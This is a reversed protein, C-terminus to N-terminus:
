GNVVGGKRLAADLEALDDPFHIVKVAPIGEQVKIPPLPPVDMYTRRYLNQLSDPDMAQYRIEENVTNLTSGFGGRETLEALVKLIKERESSECGDIYIRMPEPMMGYIGSNRLSRPKRAIYRLYPVWDMSEREDGYLRRHRVIEHLDSDMVIVESSTLRLRVTEECFDPSASYRHKGVDLTFKGYKDTRATISHPTSRYQRSHFCPPKTPRLCSPFSDGMAMM